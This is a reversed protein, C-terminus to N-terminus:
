GQEHSRILEALLEVKKRRKGSVPAPTGLSIV